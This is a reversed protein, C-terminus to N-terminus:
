NQIKIEFLAPWKKGTVLLSNKASDYAIGNLVLGNQLMNPDEPVGNKQRINTLDMRGEVKGTEPNIKLIYNTEYQNAYVFGNIYELENIDGVPGYNNTVGVVNEIKFNDPNVFYLNSSGTSIILSKNDHTIGWGEQPWNFENIKKFTQLDYVYVKNAQWTLQYIKNDFITIGEGFISPDTLKHQMVPKGTNLDVKAIKSTNYEGTGEYLHDKYWILGQTYSSTDHPYIKVVNYNIIEPAAIANEEAAKNEENDKKTNCAFLASFLIVILCNRMKGINVCIYSHM